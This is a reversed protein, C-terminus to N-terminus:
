TCSFDLLLIKRYTKGMFKARVYVQLNMVILPSLYQNPISFPVIAHYLVAPNPLHPMYAELAPMKVCTHVKEFMGQGHGDLDARRLYLQNITCM